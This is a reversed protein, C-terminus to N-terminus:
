LSKIREIENLLEIRSNAFMYVQQRIEWLFNRYMEVSETEVLYNLVQYTLDLKIAAVVKSVKNERWLDIYLDFYLGCLDLAIYRAKNPQCMIEDITEGIFCSVEKIFEVEFDKPLNHMEILKAIVEKYRTSEKKFENIM